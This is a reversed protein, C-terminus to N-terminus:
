SIKAGCCRIKPRIVDRNKENPLFLDCESAPTRLSISQSAHLPSFAFFVFLFGALIMFKTSQAPLSYMFLVYHICSCTVSIVYNNDYFCVPSISSVAPFHTTVPNVTHSTSNLLVGSMTLVDLQYSVSTGKVCKLV